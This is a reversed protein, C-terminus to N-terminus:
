ELFRAETITVTMDGPEPVRWGSPTPPGEHADREMKAVRGAVKRGDPTTITVEDGLM